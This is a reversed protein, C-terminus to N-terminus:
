NSEQYVENDFFSKWRIYHCYFCFLNVLHFAFPFKLHKKTLVLKRSLDCLGYLNSFREHIDHVDIIYTALQDLATLSFEISPYLETMRMTNKIGFSSFSDMCVLTVHLLKWRTLVMMSNKFNDILLKIFYKVVIFIYSLIILLNIGNDELTLMYSM